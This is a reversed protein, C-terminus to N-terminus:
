YGLPGHGSIYKALNGDPVLKGVDRLRQYEDKDFKTFGWKRSVVIKQRGSFKM